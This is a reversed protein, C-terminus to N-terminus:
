EVKAKDDDDDEDRAADDDEDRAADDDTEAAADDDTEAADPFARLDTTTQWVVGIVSYGIWAALIIFIYGFYEPAVIYFLVGVIAVFIVNHPM